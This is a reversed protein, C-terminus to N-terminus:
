LRIERVMRDVYTGAHHLIRSFGFKYVSVGAVITISTLILSSIMIERQIKRFIPFEKTADKVIEGGKNKHPFPENPVPVGLFECLPDWGESCQYVLLKDKPASHLVYANHQRYFKQAMQKNIVTKRRFSPQPQGGFAIQGLTGIFKFAKVGTPSLFEMLRFLLFGDNTQVQKELSRFWEDESNRMTLIIKADPFAKHIEDWFFFAPLDVVADVEEYMQRFDETSWGKHVIKNYEDSLLFANEPFDYVRYGLKTLAANMSKTGTKPMGAVIVKM